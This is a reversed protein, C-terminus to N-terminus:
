IESRLLSIIRFLSSCFKKFPDTKQLSSIADLIFSDILM